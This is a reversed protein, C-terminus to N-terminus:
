GQDVRVRGSCHVTTGSGAQMAQSPALARARATAASSKLFAAAERAASCQMQRALRAERGVAGRQRQARTFVSAKKSRPRPPVQM